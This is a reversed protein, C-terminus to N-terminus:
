RVRALGTGLGGRPGVVGRDKQLPLVAREFRKAGADRLLDRDRKLPDLPAPRVRLDRRALDPSPEGLQPGQRVALMVSLHPKSTVLDSRAHSAKRTRTVSSPPDTMSGVHSPLPRGCRTM